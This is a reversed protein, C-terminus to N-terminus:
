GVERCLWVGPAVSESSRLVRFDRTDSPVPILRAMAPSRAEARRRSGQDGQAGERGLLLTKSLCGSLTGWVPWAWSGLSVAAPPPPCTM